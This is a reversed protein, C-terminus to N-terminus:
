LKCGMLTKMTKLSKLKVGEQFLCHGKLMTRRAPNVTLNCVYIAMVSRGGAVAVSRHEM